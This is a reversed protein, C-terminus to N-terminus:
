STVRRIAPQALLPAVKAAFMRVTSQQLALSATGSFSPRLNVRQVGLEDRLEAFRRAVTTPGGIVATEDHFRFPDLDSTGVSQHGHEDSGLAALRRTLRVVIPTARERAAADSEAVLCFREVRVDGAKGGHSTYVELCAALSAITQVASLLLGYGRSAAWVIAEDTHAAVEIPPHPHQAPTPEVRFQAGDATRTRGRWYGVLTDLADPLDVQPPSAGQDARTDQYARTYPAIPWGVGLTVRGGSLRDLTALDAALRIPDHLTLHLATFGIRIRSTSAAVAAALPIPSSRARMTRSGVSSLHGDTFWLSEYGLTEAVRALEVTSTSGAGDLDGRGGPLGFRM